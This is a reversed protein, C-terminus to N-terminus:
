KSLDDKRSTASSTDALSFLGECVSFFADTYFRAIEM